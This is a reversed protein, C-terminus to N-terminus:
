AGQMTSIKQNAEERTAFAKKSIDELTSVFFLKIRMFGYDTVRCTGKKSNFRDFHCERVHLNGSGCRTVVFFRSSRTLSAIPIM